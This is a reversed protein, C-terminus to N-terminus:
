TTEEQEDIREIEDHYANIRDRCIGCVLLLATHTWDEVRYPTETLAQRCSQCHADRDARTVFNGLM